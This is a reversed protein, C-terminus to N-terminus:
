LKEIKIELSGQLYSVKINNQLTMTNFYIFYIGSPLLSTLKSGDFKFEKIFYKDAPFPCGKEPFNSFKMINKYMLEFISNGRRARKAFSCYDYNSTRM